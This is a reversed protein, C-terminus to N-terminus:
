KQRRRQRRPKRNLDSIRKAITGINGGINLLKQIDKYQLMYKGFKASRSKEKIDHFLMATKESKEDICRIRDTGDASQEVFLVNDDQANYLLVAIERLPNLECIIRNKIM